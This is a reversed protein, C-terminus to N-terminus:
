ADVIAADNISRGTFARYNIRVRGNIDARRLTATAAARWAAGASLLHTVEERACGESLAAHKLRRDANGEEMM